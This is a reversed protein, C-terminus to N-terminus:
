FGLFEEEDSTEQFLNLLKQKEQSELEEATPYCPQPQVCTSHPRGGWNRGISDSLEVPRVAKFGPLSREM